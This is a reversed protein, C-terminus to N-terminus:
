SRSFTSPSSMGSIMARASASWASSLALSGSPLAVTSCHCKRLSPLERCTIDPASPNMLERSIIEGPQVPITGCPAKALPQSEPSEGAGQWSWGPNIPNFRHHLLQLM